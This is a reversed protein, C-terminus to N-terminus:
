ILFNSIENILKLLKVQLGWNLTASCTKDNFYKM